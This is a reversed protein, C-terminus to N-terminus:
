RNPTTVHRGRDQAAKAELAYAPPAKVQVPGGRLLRWRVWVFLLVYQGFQGITYSVVVVVVPTRALSELPDWVLEMLAFALALGVWLRAPAARTSFEYALLLLLPAWLVEYNPWSIPGLMTSLLGAGAFLEWRPPREDPIRRLLSWAIALVGAGLVVNIVRSTPLGLRCLLAAPSYNEPVCGFMPGGGKNLFEAFYPIPNLLAGDSGRWALFGLGLMSLAGATGIAWIGAPRSQRRILLVLPLLILIPKLALSLGILVGAWANRRGALVFGGLALALVMLNFQLWFITAIAPAFVAAALLTGWWWRAPVRGDLRGWVVVLLAGWVALNVATFVRAASSASALQTIAAMPVALFPMATWSDLRQPHGTTWAELGGRYALGFDATYGVALAFPAVLLPPVLPALRRLGRGHYFNQGRTRGM